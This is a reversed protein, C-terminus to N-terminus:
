TIMRTPYFLSDETFDRENSWEVILRRVTAAVRERTWSQNGHKILQPNEAIIWHVLDGVTLCWVPFRRKLPRTIWALGVAFVITLAASMLMNVFGTGSFRVLAFVFLMVTFLALITFTGRSRKLEPWSNAGVNRGFGKWRAYRFKRPVIEELKSNPSISRRQVGFSRVASRRILHFARHSMCESSQQFEVKTLILDILQSPTRIAEAEDVTIIVGFRNEVANILDEADPGQTVGHGFDEFAAIYANRSQERNMHAIMREVHPEDFAQNSNDPSQV